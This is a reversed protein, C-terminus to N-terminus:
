VHEICWGFWQRIRTTRHCYKFHEHLFSWSNILFLSSRVSFSLLSPLACRQTNYRLKFSWTCHSRKVQKGYTCSRRTKSSMHMRHYVWKTWLLRLSKEVIRKINKEESEDCKRRFFQELAVSKSRKWEMEDWREENFEYSSIFLNSQLFEDRLLYKKM